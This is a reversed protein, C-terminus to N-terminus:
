KVVDYNWALVSSTIYRFVNTYTNINLTEPFDNLTMYRPNLDGERNQSFVVTPFGAERFYNGDLPLKSAEQPEMMTFTVTNYNEKGPAMLSKAFAEDLAYGEASKARTYLNMNNMKKDVDGTRSDHALMTLSIIGAIKKSGKESSIQTAFNKAGLSEFEGADLFVLKVTKPLNLKDLIEIMSLMVGVGSANNDAGPMEGKLIVKNTKPDRLLTDYNATLIIVDDPSTLGKKEWVFNVGEFSKGEMTGSFSFKSTIAGQSNFSKLKSELFEQVKKHGPSGVLRNPRGNSVFSRLNDELNNRPMKEITSRIQYNNKIKQEYAQYEFGFSKFPVLALAIFAFNFAFNTSIIANKQARVKKM